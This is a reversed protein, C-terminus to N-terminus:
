AQSNVADPHMPADLEAQAVIPNQQFVTNKPERSGLIFYYFHSNLRSPHPPPASGGGAMAAIPQAPVPYYATSLFEIFVM